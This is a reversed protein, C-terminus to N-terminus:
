IYSNKTGSEVIVEDQIGANSDVDKLESIHNELYCFKGQALLLDRPAIIAENDTAIEKSNTGEADVLETYNQMNDTGLEESIGLFSIGNEMHNKKNISKLPMDSVQTDNSEASEGIM